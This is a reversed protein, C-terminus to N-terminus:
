VATASGINASGNLSLNSGTASMISNVVRIDIAAGVAAIPANTTLIVTQHTPDSNDFYASAGPFNGPTFAQYGGGNVQIEYNAAAQVGTIDGNAGAAHTAAGSAGGAIRGTVVDWFLPQSFQM